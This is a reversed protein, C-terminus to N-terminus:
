NNWMIKRQYNTFHNQPIIKEKKLRGVVIAPCVGNENSCILITRESIPKSVLKKWSSPAILCNEAFRNADDEKDDFDIFARDNRKQLLHGLEHFLAFWFVDEQHWKITVCLSVNNGVTKIYGQVPLSQINKVIAFNIGCEYLINIIKEYAINIDKELTCRKISSLKEKLLKENFQNPNHINETEIQCLRLWSYLYYPNIKNTSKDSKFCFSPLIVNLVYPVALLNSTSAFKRLNLINEVVNRSEKIYGFEVLQKIPFEKYIEKEEESINEVIRISEIKEDYITQRNIWFSAKPQLVTELKKAFSVTISKKGNIVENIHHESVETKAALEKQSIGNREILELLTDGPHSVFEISLGNKIEAM